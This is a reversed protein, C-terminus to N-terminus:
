VYIPTHYTHTRTYMIHTNAHQTHTHTCTHAHSQTCPRSFCTWCRSACTRSSLMRRRCSSFSTHSHTRTRTRARQKQTLNERLRAAIRSLDAKTIDVTKNRRQKWITPRKKWISPRKRYENAGKSVQVYKVRREILRTTVHSLHPEDDRLSIM